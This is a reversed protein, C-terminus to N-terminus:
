AVGAAYLINRCKRDFFSNDHPVSGLVRASSSVPKEIDMMMPVTMVAAIVTSSAPKLKSRLHNKVRHPCAIKIANGVAM